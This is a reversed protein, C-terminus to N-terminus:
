QRRAKAASGADDAAVDLQVAVREGDDADGRAAEVAGVRSMWGIHPQRQRHLALDSAVQQRLGPRVPEFYKSTQRWAGAEVARARFKARRMAVQENLRQGVAARAHLGLKGRGQAHQERQGAERQQHRADVDGAQEDDSRGRAFLLHRDAEREARAARPHDRLADGFREHERADAAGGADRDRRPDGANEDGRIGHPEADLGVSSARTSIKPASAETSVPRATPRGEMTAERLISKVDMAAGAMRVDDAVDRDDDDMCWIITALWIASDSTSSIPAPSNTCLRRPRLAISGPKSM